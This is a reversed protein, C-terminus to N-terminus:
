TKKKDALSGHCGKFPSISDEYLAMPCFRVGGAIVHADLPSVAFCSPDYGRLKHRAYFRWKLSRKVAARKKGDRQEREM